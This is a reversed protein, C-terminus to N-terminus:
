NYISKTYTLDSLKETNSTQISLGYLFNCSVHTRQENTENQIPEEMSNHVFSEGRVAADHLTVNLICLCYSIILFIKMLLEIVFLLSMRSSKKKINKYFKQVDTACNNLVSISLEESM